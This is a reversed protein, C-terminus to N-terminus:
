VLACGSKQHRELQGQPSGPVELRLRVHRQRARQRRVRVPTAKAEPHVQCRLPLLSGPGARREQALLQDVSERRRRRRINHLLRARQVVHLLNPVPLLLVRAQSSICM